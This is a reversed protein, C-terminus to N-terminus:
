LDLLGEPINVRLEHTKNDAEIIFEDVAPLLIDQGNHNINLLINLTSEDVGTVIGINGYREDTVHYGIFNEWLINDPLADKDIKDLACFVDKGSFIRADSESDVGELKVLITSSGKYRYSEIFFPVLIGDMKCVIYSDDSEDFVDYQTILSIEGKIGHPKAFQGIKFVEEETIM